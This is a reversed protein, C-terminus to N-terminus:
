TITSINVRKLEWILVSRTGTKSELILSLASVGSILVFTFVFNIIIWLPFGDITNIVPILLSIGYLFFIIILTSLVRFLNGKNKILGFCVVWTGSTCLSIIVGHILLAFPIYYNFDGGSIRATIAGIIMYFCVTAMFIAAGLAKGSLEMDKYIKKM